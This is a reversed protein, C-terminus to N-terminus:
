WQFRATTYNRDRLDGSSRPACVLSLVSLLFHSTQCSVIGPGYMSPKCLPIKDLGLTRLCQMDRENEEM